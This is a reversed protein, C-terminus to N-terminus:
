DDRKPTRPNNKHMVYWVPEGPCRLYGVDLV